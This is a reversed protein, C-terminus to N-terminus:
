NTTKAQWGSGPAVRLLLKRALGTMIAGALAAATAAGEAFAALLKDPYWAPDYLGPFPGIPGLQGRKQEAAPPHQRPPLGAARVAFHFRSCAVFGFEAVLGGVGSDGSKCGPEADASSRTPM